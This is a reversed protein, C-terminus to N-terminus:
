AGQARKLRAEAYRSAEQLKRLQTPSTPRAGYVKARYLDFRERAYKAEAELQALRRTEAPTRSATM